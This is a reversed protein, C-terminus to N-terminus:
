LLEIYDKEAQVPTSNKCQLLAKAASSSCLQAAWIRGAHILRDVPFILQFHASHASINFSSGFPFLLQFHGM